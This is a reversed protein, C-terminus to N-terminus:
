HTQPFTNGSIILKDVFKELVILTSCPGATELALMSSYAFFFFFCYQKNFYWKFPHTFLAQLSKQGRTSNSELIDYWFSMLPQVVGQSNRTM